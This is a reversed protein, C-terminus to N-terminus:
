WILDSVERVEDKKVERWRGVVEEHDVKQKTKDCDRMV